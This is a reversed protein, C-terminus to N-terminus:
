QRSSQGQLSPSTLPLDLAGVIADFVSDVSISKMCDNTCYAAPTRSHQHYSYCPACKLEPSIVISNRLPASNHPNHSGFLVITKAGVAEAIHIPGTDGGVVIDSKKYLAALMGIPKDVFSILCPSSCYNSIEKIALIEQGAGTLVIGIDSYNLIRACLLKIKEEPWIKVPDNSGVHFAILKDPVSGGFSKGLFDDMDEESVCNVPGLFGAEPLIGKINFANITSLFLESIKTEHAVPQLYNLFPQLGKVTWFAFKEETELGIRLRAGSLFSALAFALAKDRSLDIIADFRAARITMMRRFLSAIDSLSPRFNSFIDDCWLEDALGQGGILASAFPRAWVVVRCGPMWERITRLLPTAFIFDGLRDHQIVLLHAPIYRQTIKKRSILFRLLLVPSLTLAILVNLIFSLM